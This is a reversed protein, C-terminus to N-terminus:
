RPQVTHTSPGPPIRLQHAVGPKLRGRYATKIQQAQQDVQSMDHIFGLIQDGREQDLQTFNAQLLPSTPSPQFPEIRQAPDKLWVDLGQKLPKPLM